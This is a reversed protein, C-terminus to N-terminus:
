FIVAAKLESLTEELNGTSVVQIRQGGIHRISRVVQFGPHPTTETHTPLARNYTIDYVTRVSNIQFWEPCIGKVCAHLHHRDFMPLAEPDFTRKPGDITVGEVEMHDQRFCTLFDLEGAADVEALGSLHFTEFGVSFSFVQKQKGM